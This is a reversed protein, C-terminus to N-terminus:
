PRASHFARSSAFRTPLTASRLEGATAVRRNNNSVSFDGHAARETLRMCSILGFHTCSSRIARGSDYAFNRLTLIWAQLTNCPLYNFPPTPRKKPFRHIVHRGLFRVRHSKQSKARARARLAMDNYMSYQATRTILRASLPADPIVRSPAYVGFEGCRHVPRDRRPTTTNKGGGRNLRRFRLVSHLYRVCATFYAAFVRGVFYGM